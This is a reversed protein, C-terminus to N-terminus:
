PLDFDFIYSFASRGSDGGGGTRKEFKQLFCSSFVFGLWAMLARVRIFGAGDLCGLKEILSNDVSAYAFEVALTQRVPWLHPRLHLALVRGSFFVVPRYGVLSVDAHTPELFNKAFGIRQHTLSWPSHV